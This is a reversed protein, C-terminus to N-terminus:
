ILKCCILTDPCRDIIMLSSHQSAKESKEGPQHMEVASLLQKLLTDYGEAGVAM